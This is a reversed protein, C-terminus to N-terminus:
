APESARAMRDRAEARLTRKDIKGSAIRPLPTEVFHLHKPSEHRALRGAIFDQLAQPSLGNRVYVTAAVEEGLREDPVGYVSAELVDPHEVLAAEVAGCGINEGGRIVLDKLRDVIFLLGADNFMAMDGTRLWGQDFVERNADPRRWYGRMLATGRVQLEGPTNVPVERGAEDVIRLDLVASARGCSMPNDLYEQGRIGAGIANIETMGWATGPSANPLVKDIAEVQEPPRAAGGGGLAVLSSLDCDNERAYAVLDGTVASPASISTVRERAILRAAEAPDWRYMSVIRRQGRFSSLFIAHLGTVHFLPIGLLTVAQGGGAAPAAVTGELMAAAGDLEWSLLASLVARHTSLVGKPFGTSGSTYLMLADDDPAIPPLPGRRPTAARALVEDWTLAGEPLPGEARVAVVQPRPVVPGAEALRAIREQDVFLVKPECDKLAFALEEPRWLANLGVAIAGVSTAAAFAVMWEPYNRLSIAVRDGRRVGFDHMLVDALAEVKTWFTEFTMREEGYVLFVAPSRAAVYLDRLSSPANRFVRQRRGLVELEILEYPQGVATLVDLAQARSLAQTPSTTDSAATTM